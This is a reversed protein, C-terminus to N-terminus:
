EETPEGENKATEQPVIEGDVPIMDSPSIPFQPEESVCSLYAQILPRYASDPSVELARMLLKEADANKGQELMYTSQEWLNRVVDAQVGFEFQQWSQIRTSSYIEIDTTMPITNLLVQQVGQKQRSTTETENLELANKYDAHGLAAWCAYRYGDLIGMQAFMPELTLLTNYAAEVQGTELEFIGQFFKPQSNPPIDAESLEFMELARYPCGRTGLAAAVQLPDVGLDIQKQGQEYLSDVQIQLQERTKELQSMQEDNFLDGEIALIREILKLAPEPRQRSIAIEQLDLLATFNQPDGVLAQHYAMHAQLFRFNIDYRIGNAECFRAELLGLNYYTKGLTLFALSSDPNEALALNANRISLYAFALQARFDIQYAGAVSQQIHQLYHRSLVLPTPIKERGATLYSVYASEPQPFVGRELSESVATKEGFAEDLFNIRNALLFERYKGQDVYALLTEDGLNTRYFVAVTPTLKTLNFEPNLMLDTYTLYDPSRGVIRPQAHTIEFKAFAARWTERNKLAEERTSSRRMAARTQDHVAILDLQSPESTTVDTETGDFLALRSDIFVRQNAWILIDGQKLTFNFPKNDYEDKLDDTLGSVANKLQNEFGFGITRDSGKYLRGTMGLWAVAMFSLVTLARGGRSFLLEWQNVRYEQSFSSRYWDQCNLSIFVVGVIIAPGLERLTIAALGAFVLASLVEGPVLKDYNLFLAALILGGVSLGAVFPITLSQWYLESWIPFNTIQSEFSTGTYYERLLPDSVSYLDVASLWVNWGFPNLLSVVFAAGVTQWLVGSPIIPANESPKRRLMEGVALLLLLLLGLFMRPDANAWLLFLVTIKWNFSKEKHYRWGVFLRLLLGCGLLTVLESTATLFPILAVLGVVATIATWWTPTRPRSITVVCWIVVGSLFAKFVSLGIAGGLGYVGALALDFLWSQNRWVRGETTYAFPDSGDPVFSNAVLNQGAKVHVLTKTESIVTCGLLVALLVAAWRLVFDGRIAEEEVLEPTLEFEEPLDSSTTTASTFETGQKKEPAPTDSEPQTENPDSVPVSESFRRDGPFEPEGLYSTL